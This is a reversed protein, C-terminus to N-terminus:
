RHRRMNWLLWLVLLALVGVSVTWLSFGFITTVGELHAIALSFLLVGVALTGLIRVNNQRDLERKFDHLEQADIKVGVMGKEIKALVEQAHEPLKRALDLADLADVPIGKALKVAYQKYADTIYPQLSSDFHFAPDLRLGMAETTVLAKAFLALDAPFRIRFGM